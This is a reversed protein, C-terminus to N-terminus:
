LRSTICESEAGHVADQDLGESDVSTSSFCFKPAQRTDIGRRSVKECTKLDSSCSSHQNCQQVNYTGFLQMLNYQSTSSRRGWLAAM